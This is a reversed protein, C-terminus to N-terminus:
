KLFDYTGLILAKSLCVGTLAMTIGNYLGKVGEKRVIYSMCNTLGTFKRKGGDVM